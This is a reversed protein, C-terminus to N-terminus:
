KNPITGHNNYKLKNFLSSFTLERKKGFKVIIDFVFKKNYWEVMYVKGNTKKIVLDGHKLIKVNIPQNKEKIM